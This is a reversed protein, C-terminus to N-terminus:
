HRVHAAFQIMTELEIVDQATIHKDNPLLSLVNITKQACFARLLKKSVNEWVGAYEKRIEDAFLRAQHETYLSM